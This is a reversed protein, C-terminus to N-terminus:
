PTEEIEFETEIDEIGAEVEFEELLDFLADVDKAVFQRGYVTAVFM